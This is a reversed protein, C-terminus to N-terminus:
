QVPGANTANHKAKIRQIESVPKPVDKPADESAGQTSKTGTQAGKNDKSQAKKKLKDTVKKPIKVLLSEVFTVSEFSLNPYIADGSEPDVSFSVSTLVCNHAFRRVVNNYIELVTFLEKDRQMTTFYLEMVEASRFKTADTMSVVPASQDLFAAAAEPLYKTLPNEEYTIEVGDDLPSNNLINVIGRPNELYEYLANQSENDLRDTNFDANSIIGSLQFTINDLTVHDSIVGGREIPHKTVQSTFTKTFNLIADFWIIDGNARMLVTTTTM